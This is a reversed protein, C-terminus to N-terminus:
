PASILAVSGTDVNLTNASIFTSEAKCATKYPDEANSSATAIIM